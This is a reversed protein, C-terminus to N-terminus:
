SGTKIEMGGKALRNQERKYEEIPVLAPQKPRYECESIHKRFDRAGFDHGCFPCPTLVIPRGRLRGEVPPLRKRKGGKNTNTRTSTRTRKSNNVHM